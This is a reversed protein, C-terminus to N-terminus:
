KYLTCVIYSFIGYSTNPPSGRSGTSQKIPSHSLCVLSIAAAVLVYLQILIAFSPLSPFCSRGKGLLAGNGTGDGFEKVLAAPIVDLGEKQFLRKPRKRETCSVRSTGPRTDSEMSFSVHVVSRMLIPTHFALRVSM